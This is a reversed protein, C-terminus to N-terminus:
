DARYVEEMSRGKLIYHQMLIECLEFEEVTDTEFIQWPRAEIFFLESAIKDNEILEDMEPVSYESFSAEYNKIYGASRTAANITCQQLYSGKKDFLVRRCMGGAMEAYIVAERVKVAYTTPVENQYYALILNDLDDPMRLPGTPLITTVSNIMSFPEIKEVAYAFTRVASERWAPHRVVEDAGYSHSIEEIEDDDTAMVVYDLLKSARAQAISWAILPHGCFDKVNKRPLRVSGGRAIIIAVNM